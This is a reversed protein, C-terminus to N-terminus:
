ACWRSFQSATQIFYAPRPLNRVLRYPMIIKPITFSLRSSTAKPFHFSFEMYIM